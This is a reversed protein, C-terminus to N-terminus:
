KCRAIHSRAYLQCLSLVTVLAESLGVRLRQGSAEGVAPHWAPSSSIMVDAMPEGWRDILCRLIQLLHRIHVRLVNGHGELVAQELPQLSVSVM